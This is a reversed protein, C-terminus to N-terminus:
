PEEKEKERSKMVSDWSSLSTLGLRLRFAITVTESSYCLQHSVLFIWSTGLNKIYTESVNGYLPSYSFVWAIYTIDLHLTNFSASNRYALILRVTIILLTWLWLFIYSGCCLYSNMALAEISLRKEALTLYPLSVQWFYYKVTWSDRSRGLSPRFLIVVFSCIQMSM